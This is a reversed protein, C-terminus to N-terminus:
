TAQERRQQAAAWTLGNVELDPLIRRAHALAQDLPFRHTNKWDDTRNSPLPEYDWVGDTNLSNSFWLVAWRDHPGRWEVRIQWLGLALHDPPAADLVYVAPFPEGPTPYTLGPQTSTLHENAWRDRLARAGEEDLHGHTILVEVTGAAETLAETVIGTAEEDIDDDDAIYCSGRIGQNMAEVAVRHVADRHLLGLRALDEATPPRETGDEDRLILTTDTM